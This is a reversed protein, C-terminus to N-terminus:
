YTKKTGKLIESNSLKWDFEVLLNVKILADVLAITLLKSYNETIGREELENKFKNIYANPNNYCLLVDYYVEENNKSLTDTIYKVKDL